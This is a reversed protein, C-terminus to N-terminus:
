RLWLTGEVSPQPWARSEPPPPPRRADEVDAPSLGLERQRVLDHDQPILGAGDAGDYHLEGLRTSVGVAPPPLPSPTWRVPAQGAASPPPQQQQRRKSMAVLGAAAAAVGLVAAIWVKRSEVM